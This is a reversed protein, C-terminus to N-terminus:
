AAGAASDGDVRLKEAFGPLGRQLRLLAEGNPIAGGLWKKAAMETVGGEAALKTATWGAESVAERLAETIEM